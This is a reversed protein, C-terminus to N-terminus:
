VFLTRFYLKTSRRIYYKLSHAFDIEFHLLWPVSFLRGGHNTSLFFKQIRSTRSHNFCCCKSKSSLRKITEEKFSKEKKEKSKSKIKPKPPPPTFPPSCPGGLRGPTVPRSEGM